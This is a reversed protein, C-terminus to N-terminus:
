VFFWDASDSVCTSVPDLYLPLEFWQFLCSQIWGPGCYEEGEQIKVPTAYAPHDFSIPTVIVISSATSFAM